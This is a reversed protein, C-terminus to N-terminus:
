GGLIKALMYGGIGGLVGSVGLLWIIGKGMWYAEQLRKIAGEHEDLLRGCPCNDPTHAQEIRRTVQELLTATTNQRRATEHNSDAVSRLLTFIENIQARMTRSDAELAALREVLEAM